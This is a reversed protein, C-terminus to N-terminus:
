GHEVHWFVIVERKIVDGAATTAPAGGNIPPPPAQDFKITLPDLQRIEFPKDQAVVLPKDQTVTFPRDQTVRLEPNAIRAVMEPPTYRWLFSIGWSALLIGVGVGAAAIGIATAREVAGPRLFTADLRQEM